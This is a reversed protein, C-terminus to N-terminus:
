NGEATIPDFPLVEGVTPLCASWGVHLLIAAHVTEPIGSVRNHSDLQTKIHLPTATSQNSVIVQRIHKFYDLKQIFYSRRM